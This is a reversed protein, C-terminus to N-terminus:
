NKIQVILQKPLASFGSIGKLASAGLEIKGLQYNSQSSFYKKGPQPKQHPLLQHQVEKKKPM